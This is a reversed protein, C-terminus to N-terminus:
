RGAAALSPWVGREPFGSRLGSFCVEPPKDASARPGVADGWASKQRRRHAKGDTAEAAQESPKRRSPDSWGYADHARRARAAWLMDSSGSDLPYWLRPIRLIDRRSWDEASSGDVHPLRTHCSCKVPPWLALLIAALHGSAPAPAPAQPPHCRCNASDLYVTNFRCCCHPSTSIVRFLPQPESVLLTHTTPRKKRRGGLLEDTGVWYHGTM